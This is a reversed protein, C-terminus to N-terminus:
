YGRLPRGSTWTFASSALTRTSVPVAPWTSARTVVLPQRMPEPSTVTVSLWVPFRTSRSTRRGFPFPNPVLLREISITSWIGFSASRSTLVPSPLMLTCGTAPLTLREVPSPLM